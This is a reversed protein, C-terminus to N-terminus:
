RRWLRMMTMPVRDNRLGDSTEAASVPTRRAASVGIVAVTLREGESDQHYCLKGPSPPIHVHQAARNHRLKNDM